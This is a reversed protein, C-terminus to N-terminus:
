SGRGGERLWVEQQATPLAESCARNMTKMVDADAPCDATASCQCRSPTECHDHVIVCQSVSTDHSLSPPGQTVQLPQHACPSTGSSPTSGTPPTSGPSRCCLPPPPPPSPSASWVPVTCQRCEVVQERSHETTVLTLACTWHNWKFVTASM